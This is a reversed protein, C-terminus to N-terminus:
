SRVGYPMARNQENLEQDALRLERRTRQLLDKIWSAHYLLRDCHEQVEQLSASEASFELPSQYLDYVDAVFDSVSGDLNEEPTELDLEIEEGPNLARLERQIEQLLATFCAEKYELETKHEELETVKSSLTKM